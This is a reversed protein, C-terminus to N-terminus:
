TTEEEEVLTFEWACWYEEPHPDPPCAICKTEIRPDIAKAFGEYEVIGVSKCPFDDLGKRKRTSQVRCDVMEETGATHHSERDNSLSSVVIASTSEM